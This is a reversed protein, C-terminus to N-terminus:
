IDALSSFNIDRRGFDLRSSNAQLSSLDKFISCIGFGLEQYRRSLSETLTHSQAAPPGARANSHSSQKKYDGARYLQLSFLIKRECLLM